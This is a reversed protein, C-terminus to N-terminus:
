SPMSLGGHRVQTITRTVRGRTACASHFFLSLERAARLGPTDTPFAIAFFAGWVGGKLPGSHTVERPRVSNTTNAALTDIYRHTGCTHQPPLRTSSTSSRTPFVLATKVSRLSLFPPADPPRRHFIAFVSPPASPVPTPVRDSGESFFGPSPVPVIPAQTLSHIPLGNTVVARHAPQM